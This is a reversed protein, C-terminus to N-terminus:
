QRASQCQAPNTPAAPAYYAAANAPVYGDSLTCLFAILDKREAANLSPALGPHYPAELVNVNAVFDAPLDNYPAIEPTVGDAQVYWRAPDVDRTIYFDVLDQLNHFVGNHFYSQKIAVNRLSPVKFQGCTAAGLAPERLPGCLGLDYYAYPAGLATGNLPLGYYAPTPDTNAAIEWNRPVGLNDYTYDTFM